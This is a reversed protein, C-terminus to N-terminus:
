FLPLGAFTKCKMAKAFSFLLVACLVLSILGSWDHFAHAISSGAIEGAVGIMMIRISNVLISLPLSV